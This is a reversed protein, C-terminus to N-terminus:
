KSVLVSPMGFHNHVGKALTTRFIDNKHLNQSLLHEIDIVPKIM